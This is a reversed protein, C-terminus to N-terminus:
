AEEARIKEILHDVVELARKQGGRMGVVYRGAVVLSPTAAINYRRIDNNAQTMAQRVAPSEFARMFEEDTLGRGDVYDAIMQASLFQRGGDHIARFMRRHNQKLAEEAELALYAQGLLTQIPSWTVPVKKVVVDDAQKEAWDDIEPDFTKCHVCTYSFYEVVDIPDGDRRPKPNDVETYDSDAAIEGPRGLDTSVYTGFGLILIAVVTVFGIIANRAITAQNKSKKKKAM